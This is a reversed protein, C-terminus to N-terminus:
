GKAGLKRGGLCHLHLHFETQGADEGTNGALRYGSDSIGMERAVKAAATFLRGLAPEHREEAERASAIHERPIVLFHVPAQRWPQGEPIDFAVVLDDEYLFPLGAAGSAIRCLLCDDPPM